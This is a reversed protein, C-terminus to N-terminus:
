RFSRHLLISRAINATLMVLWNM